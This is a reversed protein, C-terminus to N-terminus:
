KLCCLTLSALFVFCFSVIAGIWGAPGWTIEWDVVVDSYTMKGSFTDCPSTYDAYSGGWPTCYLNGDDGRANPIRVAFYIISTALAAMALLASVIGVIRFIQSRVFKSFCYVIHVLLVVITLGGSTLVLAFCVDYVRAQEKTNSGDRWDYDSQFCHCEGAQYFITTGNKNLSSWNSWSDSRCYRKWWGELITHKCESSPTPASTPGPTPAPTPAPVTVNSSSNTPALTPSPTPSPSPPPAPTVTPPHLTLTRTFFYWPM